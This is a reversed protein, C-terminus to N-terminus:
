YLQLTNYCTKSRKSHVPTGNIREVLFGAVYWANKDMKAKEMEEFSNLKLTKSRM